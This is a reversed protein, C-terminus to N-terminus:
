WPNKSYQVNEKSLTLSRHTKRTVWIERAATHGEEQDRNKRREQSWTMETQVEKENKSVGNDGRHGGGGGGGGGVVAVGGGCEPADDDAVVEIGGGCEAVVSKECVVGL